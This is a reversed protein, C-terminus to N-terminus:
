LQLAILRGRLSSGSVEERLLLGSNTRSQVFTTPAFSGSYSPSASPFRCPKKPRGVYRLCRVRSRLAMESVRAPFILRSISAFTCISPSSFEPYLSPAFVMSAFYSGSFGAATPVIPRIVFLARPLCLTRQRRYRTWLPGRRPNVTGAPISNYSSSVGVLQLLGVLSEVGAEALALGDIDTRALLQMKIGYRAVLQFLYHLPVLLQGCGAGFNTDTDAGLWLRVRTARNCPLYGTLFALNREAFNPLYYIANRFLLHVSQSKGM